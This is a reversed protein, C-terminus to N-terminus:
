QFLVCPAFIGPFGVPAATQDAPGLFYGPDAQDAELTGPLLQIRSQQTGKGPLRDPAIHLTAVVAPLAQLVAVAPAIRMGAQPYALAVDAHVANFVTRLVGDM